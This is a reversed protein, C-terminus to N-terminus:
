SRSRRVVGFGLLGLAFLSLSAPIPIDKPPAMDLAASVSVVRFASDNLRTDTGVHLFPFANMDLAYFNPNGPLANVILNGGVLGTIPDSGDETFSGGILAQEPEGDDNRVRMGRLAVETARFGTPLIFTLLDGLRNGLNDVQANGNGAVGLGAASGHVNGDAIPVFPFSSSPLLRFASVGLLYGGSEFSTTHGLNGREGTLDWTISLAHATSFLTSLALLALLRLPKQLSIM